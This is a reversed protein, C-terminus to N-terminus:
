SRQCPRNPNSQAGARSQFAAHGCPLDRLYRCACHCGTSPARRAFSMSGSLADLSDLLLDNSWYSVFLGLAGGALALLLGECLFQRVIRWRTAGLALRIAIEKARVAGRALLLDALNLSAILLVAAAMGMLLIGILSVPGDQEPSTSLSFRSPSQIQLERSGASDPPRIATLRQALSSLRPKASEITLGSHLRAVVNLTYNKPMALDTM